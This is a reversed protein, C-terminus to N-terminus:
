AGAAEADRQQTGDRNRRRRRPNKKAKYLTTADTVRQSGQESAYTDVVLHEPSVLGADLAATAQIQLLEEMLADDLRSRFRCLVEPLVFHAQHVDAQVDQIGCAYMLAFDTRLRSCIQEDSCSLEAKFLELALLVRTSIPFRGAASEKPFRRAMSREVAEVMEAWSFTDAFLRLYHDSPVFDSVRIRPGSGGLWHQLQRVIGM